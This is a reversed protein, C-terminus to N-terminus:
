TGNCEVRIKSVTQSAGGLMNTGDLARERHRHATANAVAHARVRHEGRACVLDGDVGRRHCVGGHERAERLAEPALANDERDVGLRPRDGAAPAAPLDHRVASLLLRPLVDHLPRLFPHREARPLDEERREVAVAAARAVVAGEEGGHRAGDGGGDDGAAAAVRRLV